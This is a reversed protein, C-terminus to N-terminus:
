IQRGSRYYLMEHVTTHIASGVNKAIINRSLSHTDRKKNSIFREITRTLTKEMKSEEVKAPLKINANKDYFIYHDLVAKDLSTTFKYMDPAVTLVAANFKDAVETTFCKMYEKQNVITVERHRYAMTMAVPEDSPTSYMKGYGPFLANAITYTNWIKLLSCLM